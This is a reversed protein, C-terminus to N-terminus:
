SAAPRRRPLAAPAGETGRAQRPPPAAGARAATRAPAAWAGIQTSYAAIRDIIERARFQLLGLNLSSTGIVAVIASDGAAYVALYGNSGRSVAERFSGCGSALTARSALSLTAASIAAIESPELDPVDHAFVLGDSTAALSGRVGAVQNRILQLQAQVQDQLSPGSKQAAPM